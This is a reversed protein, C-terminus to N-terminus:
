GFFCRCILISNSFKLILHAYRFVKVAPYIRWKVSLIFVDDFLIRREGDYDVCISHLRDLRLLVVRYGARLVRFVLLVELEGPPNGTRM